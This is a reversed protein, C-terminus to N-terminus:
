NGLSNICGNMQGDVAKLTSAVPAGRIIKDFANSLLTNLLGQYVTGCNLAEDTPLEPPTIGFHIATIFATNNLPYSRWAPDNIMSARVPVNSGTAGLARQGPVSGIYKVVDWAAARQHSNDSVAFGAAGMGNVHRGSPYSPMQQVDWAFKKGIGQAYGPVAAHVTFAMAVKGSLLGKNYYAQETPPVAVKYRVFLDQIAQFGAISGASSLSLHKGDPTLLSGGYGELWPVLTAWWYALDIGWQVVKGSSDKKTLKQAADLFQAYTWNAQPFAVGAAKFMDKNYFTTVADASVPIMYLGSQGTLRGLDLFNQYIDKINYSPDQDVYPQMNLVVHRAAFPINFADATLIIDALTGASAQLLVKQAYTTGDVKQLEIQVNPHIKTYAKIIINAIPPWFNDNTVEWTLKVTGATAQSARAAPLAAFASIICAAMGFRLWSRFARHM